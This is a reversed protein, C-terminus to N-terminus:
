HHDVLGPEAVYPMPRIATVINGYDVIFPPRSQVSFLGRLELPNMRIFSRNLLPAEKFNRKIVWYGLSDDRISGCLENNRMRMENYRGQYGFVAGSSVNYPIDGTSATPTVFIERELVAQESLNVFEPWFFDLNTRRTYRPNLGQSYNIDPYISMIGLIFGYESAHYKGIYTKDAMLAQGAYDGLPSNSTTESTQLVTTVMVPSNSGGIYVPRQLTGDAPAEGFHARLLETYRVGGRANRELWKQTQVIDRLESVRISVLQSVDASVANNWVPTFDGKADSTFYNPVMLARGGFQSLGNTLFGISKDIDNFNALPSQIQQGSTPSSVSTSGIVGLAQNTAFDFTIPLDGSIPIAPAVGRQQFPLSSTFYDKRWALNQISSPHGIPYPMIYEQGLYTDNPRFGDLYSNINIRTAQRPDLPAFIFPKELNEDRYYENWVLNYCAYPWFTPNDLLYMSPTVYPYSKTTDWDSYQWSDAATSGNLTLPYAIYDWFSYKYFTATGYQSDSMGDLMLCYVANYDSNGEEAPTSNVKPAKKLVPFGLGTIPIPLVQRGDQGNSIFTEFDPYPLRAPIFFYDTRCKISTFCPSQLPNARIVIRNALKFTDGPVCEEFYVPILQGMDCDFTKSYSLDFASRSPRLAGVSKFVSNM